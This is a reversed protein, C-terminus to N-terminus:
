NCDEFLDGNKILEDIFSEDYKALPNNQSILDSSETAFINKANESYTASRNINFQGFKQAGSTTIRDILKGKIPQWTNLQEAVEPKQLENYIHDFFEQVIDANENVIRVFDEHPMTNHMGLTQYEEASIVDGAATSAMAELKPIVIDHEGTLTKYLEYVSDIDPDGSASIYNPKITKHSADGAYSEYDLLKRWSSDSEDFYVKTGQETTYYIATAKKSPAVNDIDGLLTWLDYWTDIKVNQSYASNIRSPDSRLIRYMNGSVNTLRELKEIKGAEGTTHDFERRYVYMNLGNLDIGEKWSKTIDMHSISLNYLQDKHIKMFDIDSGISNRITEKDLVFDAFKTMGNQGNIFDISSIFPKQEPGGDGQYQQNLSEYSKLRQTYSVFSGGDLDVIPEKDGHITTIPTVIDDVFATRTFEEVGRELGLAFPRITAGAMVNRKTMATWAANPNNGKHAHINGLAVNLLNESLFNWDYFFKRYAPLIQKVDTVDDVKSLKYQAIGAITKKFSQSDYHKDIFKVADGTLTFGSKNITNVDSIMKSDLWDKLKSSDQHDYLAIEAILSDKIILPTRKPDNTFTKGPNQYHVFNNLAVGAADAYFLAADRGRLFPHAKDSYWFDGSNFDNIAKLKASTTKYGSLDLDGRAAAIVKSWDRIINDGYKKYYQGNTRYLLDITQEEKPVKGDDNIFLKYNQGDFQFDNSFLGMANKTKDSYVTPDIAVQISGIQPAQQLMSFYGGNINFNYSTFVSQQSNSIVRGNVEIADRYLLGKFLNPDQILANHSFVNASPDYNLISNQTKAADLLNRKLGTFLNYKSYASISNGEKNTIVSKARNGTVRDKSAAYADIVPQLTDIKNFRVKYEDLRELPVKAVGEGFLSNIIDNGTKLEVIPNKTAIANRVDNDTLITNKAMTVKLAQRLFQVYHDPFVSEVNDSQRSILENQFDKDVSSGQFDVGLLDSSLAQIIEQSLETKADGTYLDNGKIVYKDGNYLFEVTSDLSTTGTPQYKSFNAIVRDSLNLQNFLGAEISQKTSTKGSASLESLKIVGKNNVTAEAYSIKSITRAPETILQMLAHNHDLNNYMITQLYSEPYKDTAKNDAEVLNRVNYEKGKHNDGYEEFFNKYMTYLINRDEWLSKDDYMGEIILGKISRVADRVDVRDFYKDFAKQITPKSLYDKTELGTNIDLIPTSTMITDYLNSITELGKVEETFNANSAEEKKNIVFKYKLDDNFDGIDPKDAVFLYEEFSQKLVDDFRRLAVFDMYNSVIQQAEPIKDNDADRAIDYLSNVKADLLDVVGGKYTPNTIRNELEQIAYNYMKPNSIALDATIPINKQITQGTIPDTYREIRNIPQNDLLRTLIEKRRDKLNKNVTLEGQEGETNVITKAKTDIILSRIIVDKVFFTKFKSELYNTNHFMAKYFEAPSAFEEAKFESTPTDAKLADEDFYGMRQDDIVEKEAQVRQDIAREVNDDRTENLKVQDKLLSMHDVDAQSTGEFLKNLTERIVPANHEDNIFADLNYDTKIFFQKAINDFESVFGSFPPLTEAGGKLTQFYTGVQLQTLIRQAQFSTLKVPCGPKVIM